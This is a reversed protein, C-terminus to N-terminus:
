TLYMVCTSLDSQFEYSFLDMHSLFSLFKRSNAWTFPRCGLLMCAIGESVIAKSKKSGSARSYGALAIEDSVQLSLGSLDSRQASFAIFSYVQM